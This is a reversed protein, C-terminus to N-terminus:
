NLGFENLVDAYMKEKFKPISQLLERPTVVKFDAFEIEDEKNDFKFNPEALLKVLFFKKEQGDFGKFQKDFSYRFFQKSEKLVLCDNDELGIEESLERKLAELPTENEEMGGEPGQWSDRYDSRQFVIINDNKDLVIAGVGKRFKM